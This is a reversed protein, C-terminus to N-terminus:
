RGLVDGTVTALLQQRIRAASWSGDAPVQCVAVTGPALKKGTTHRCAKNIQVQLNYYYRRDRGKYTRQNDLRYDHTKHVSKGDPLAGMIKTDPIDEIWTIVEKKSNGM